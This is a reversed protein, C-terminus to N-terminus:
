KRAEEVAWIGIIFYAQAFIFVFVYVCVFVFSVVVCSAHWMFLLLFEIILITGAMIHRFIYIYM